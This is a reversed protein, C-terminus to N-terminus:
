KRLTKISAVIMALVENVEQALPSLRPAPIIGSEGLMELWHLTEDAEKEVIALKSLM